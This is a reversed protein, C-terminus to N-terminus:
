PTSFHIANQPNKFFSDLKLQNKEYVFEILRKLVERPVNMFREVLNTLESEVPNKLIPGRSLAHKVTERIQWNGVPYIYQPLIERLITVRAQRGISYLYQLVSTRAALFGGDMATFSNPRLEKVEFWELGEGPNYIAKPHWVEIWLARYSGPSLIILYKNYLYEGYFILTDSLQQFGRVVDLLLNSIITDTATIAWRTPVLKRKSRYGLLGLSLARTITYFDINSNYLEKIAESTKVDDFIMMELKKPTSPNGVVRLLEALVRPGTPPLLYDFNTSIGLVKSVVAETDVPRLSIAALAVESEYLKGVSTVLVKPLSVMAMSSRLEIIEELGLKLHWSVPNDFNRAEEGYVGPPIGMYIAVRPYGSEGVLATPPTSGEVFGRSIRTAVSVRSIYSSLLPCRSLGCLLKYGKCEICLRPSPKLV